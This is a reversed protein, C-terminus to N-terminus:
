LLGDLQFTPYGKKMGLLDKKITRKNYYDYHRTLELRNKHM